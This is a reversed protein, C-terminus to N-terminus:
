LAPLEGLKTVTLSAIVYTNLGVPGITTNGSVLQLSLTTLSPNNVSLNVNGQVFTNNAGQYVSGAVVVDNIAIGFQVPVAGASALSVNFSVNYVGNPILVFEGGAFLQIDSTTTGTLNFKINDGSLIVQGTQTYFYGYSPSFSVGDAGSLGVAGAPGTDGKPGQLKIIEYKKYHESHKHNHNHHENDSSSSSSDDKELRICIHCKKCDNCKKCKHDDSNKCWINKSM